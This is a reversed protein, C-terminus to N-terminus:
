WGRGGGGGGGGGSRGGGSSGSSWSGSGSSYSTKETKANGVSTSLGTFTAAFRVTRFGDRSDYWDLRYDIRSLVDDFKKCWENSVGLVLAYPLLKEFLELTHEPPALMNLRHEEATKMYMRLGEIESALRAGEPTFMRVRSVYWLYGASMMAYFFTSLWHINAEFSSDFHLLLAGTMLMFPVTLIALLVGGSLDFDGVSWLRVVAAGIVPSAVCFAMMVDGDSFSFLTYLGLVVLLIIGARVTYKRNEIFYDKIDWRNTLSNKLCTDAQSFITHNEQVVDVKRRGGAFLANHMQQEVPRLQATDMKNIFAYKKKEECRITMARNVAMDVFTASLAKERYARTHLYSVEAPSLNRPPKFAPIVVPKPPRKGSKRVAHFCYFVFILWGVPYVGSPPPPRSVINRPFAVSVTLGECPALTATTSFVLTNDRDECSCDTATADVVGTYCFTQGAIASVGAPLTIAASAREIPFVWGNGTVNWYLEDYGDFFGIHGFSEYVITYDYEGAVLLVDASGIRLITHDSDDRTAFTVKEGNCRVALINTEMRVRKGDSDKRYLPIDREIGRKIDIGGAYVKIHETVEIRGTTDIVIDAHFRIIREEQQQGFVATLIMLAAIIIFHKRM